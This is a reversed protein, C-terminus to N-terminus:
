GEITVQGMIVAVGGTAALKEVAKALTAVPADVTGAADDSGSNAVFVVNDSKAIGDAAAVGIVFTSLAMLVALVFSFIRTKKM